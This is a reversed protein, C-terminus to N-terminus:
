LAPGPPSSEPPAAELEFLFRGADAFLPMEVVNYRGRLNDRLYFANRRRGDLVMVFGPRFRPELDIPDFAVRRESTLPPSDLYLFDPDVDPVNAHTWGPLDRDSAEARSQVLTVVDRLEEPLAAQTVRAWREDVELSWLHGVGNDRVATALVVTSCGSGFELLTEPRRERVLRYLFWLDSWDPELASAPQARRFRRLPRLAGARWLRARDAQQRPTRRRAWERLRRRLRKRRERM